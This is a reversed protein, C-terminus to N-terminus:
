QECASSWSTLRTCFFLDARPPDVGLPDITLKSLLMSPLNVPVDPESPASVALAFFLAVSCNQRAPLCSCQASTGKTTLASRVSGSSLTPVRRSQSLEIPM